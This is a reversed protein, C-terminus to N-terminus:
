SRRRSCSSRAPRAFSRAAPAPDARGARRRGRAREARRRAMLGVGRVEAVAPLGEAARLARSCASAWSARRPRAARGARHDRPQSAGRRRRDPPRQVHVRARVATGDLMQMVRDGILVAGMPVYGSTLGKATVIVDAACAAGASPPSGRARHARLRDRDRGPDAPHRAARPGGAIRPWYDDPPPIMGASAWADARRDHGRHAGRRRAAITQELEAVCTETCDAAACRTAAGDPARLGRRAARLGRAAAPDRDGLAIRLGRRPLAMSRSLIVTRDPQGAPTGPWGRGGQDGDGRGGVRREHLLRADIGAPAIAALREALEIAPENSLDWFSAYFELRRMQEAAVDALEERGHGVLCQWLGCTGDIYDNGDVDTIVAGRPRARRDAARRPHGVVQHPHVIHARDLRSLREHSM